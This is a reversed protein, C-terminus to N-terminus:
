CTKFILVKTNIYLEQTSKEILVRSGAGGKYGEMQKAALKRSVGEAEKNTAAFFHISTPHVLFFQLEHTIYLHAPKTHWM